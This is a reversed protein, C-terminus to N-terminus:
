VVTVPGRAGRRLARASTVRVRGGRLRRVRGVGVTMGDCSLAATRGVRAIAEDGGRRVALTVVAHADRLSSASCAEARTEPPSSPPPAWAIVYESGSGSCSYKASMSSCRRQRWSSVASSSSSPFLAWWNRTMSFRRRTLSLSRFGAGSCAIGDWGMGDWGMGDWSRTLSLSRFGAGSCAIARRDRPPRTPRLVGATVHPDDRAQFRWVVM